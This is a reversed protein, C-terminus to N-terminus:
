LALWALIFLCSYWSIVAELPINIMAIIRHIGMKKMIIAPQARCHQVGTGQWHPTTKADTCSRNTTIAPARTVWPNIVQSPQSDLVLQHKQINHAATTRDTVRTTTVADALQLHQPLISLSYLFRAPFGSFGGSFGGSCSLLGVALTFRELCVEALHGFAM